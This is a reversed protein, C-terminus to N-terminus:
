YGDDESQDPSPPTDPDVQVGPEPNPDRAGGPDLNTPNGQADRVSEDPFANAVDGAAFDVNVDLRAIKSASARISASTYGGGTYPGPPYDILPWNRTGWSQPTAFTIEAVAGVLVEDGDPGTDETWPGVKVQYQQGALLPQTTPDNSIINLALGRQTDTLSPTPGGSQDSPDGPDDTSVSDPADPQFDVFVPYTRVTQRGVADTVTLRVTQHGSPLSGFQRPLSGSAPCRSSNTAACVFTTDVAQDWGPNGPSDLQVRKVGLGPDAYNLTFTDTSATAESPPSGTITPDEADYMYVFAGGVYSVNFNDRV